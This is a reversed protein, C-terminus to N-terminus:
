DGRRAANRLSGADQHFHFRSIGGAGGAAQLLGAPENGATFAGGSGSFVIAGIAPDRDAQRLAGAAALYMAGTLANKKEPRDFTVCLVAGEREIRVNPT